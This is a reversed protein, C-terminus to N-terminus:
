VFIGTVYMVLIGTVVGAINHRSSIVAGRGRMLGFIAYVVQLIAGAGVALFVVSAMPMNMFGGIWAGIITPIGAIMGLIALHTIRVQSRVMPSAIAFGETTNHITFGIMLFKSLAVAGVALAAGIALGEGLNHLGIGVAVMYAIYLVGRTPSVYEGTKQTADTRISSYRSGSKSDDARNMTLLLLLFTSIIIAPILVEGGVVAFRDATEFAEVVADIALLALLGATLSLFFENWREGVRQMLPFWLLGLAVPIVGVYTGLLAFYLLQETSPEPAPTAAEVTSAFRTGDSTTVGIEYPRGEVWRYNIMLQASSLRQLVNTPTIIADVPADDIDAQAITVADQGVNRIHVVILNLKFEVREIVISPLPERGDFM